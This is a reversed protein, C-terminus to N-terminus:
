KYNAKKLRNIKASKVRNHRIKLLKAALSGPLEQYHSPEMYYSARGATLSRIATSYASLESLPVTATIVRANGRQATRPLKLVAPPCIVSSTV